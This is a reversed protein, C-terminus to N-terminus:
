SSEGSTKRSDRAFLMELLAMLLAMGIFFRWLEIGFRTQLITSQLKDGAGISHIMQENIGFRNFFKGIDEAAITRTDSEYPDIDVSFLTLIAAGSRIEYIGQSELKPPTFVLMPNVTSQLVPQIIEEIGVPSIIKFQRDRGTNLNTFQNSLTRAKIIPQDGTIYTRQKEVRSGVYMASRYIIPAFIGKLPFDSWSLIPAVSFLLIKGNGFSYESLFPKRDSTFIITQAHKDSQQSAIKFITPSNINPIARSKPHNTQEFITNFIPHDSDIKGFTLNSNPAQPGPLETYRSIGLPSLLEQNLNELNTNDGPFIILGGGQEVFNAIREADYQTLSSINSCILTQINKLDLSSFKQAPLYKITFLSQDDDFYGAKLALSLYRIDDESKSAMAININAPVNITFYRKNDFEIADNEIEVYGRIFGTRKPTLTF